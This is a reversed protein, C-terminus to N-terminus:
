KKRGKSGGFLSGLISNDAKFATTTGDKHHDAVEELVGKGDNVFHGILSKDAEYQYSRRGDDSTERIATVKGKSDRVYSRKSM